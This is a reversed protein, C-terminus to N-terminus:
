PSTITLLSSPCRVSVFAMHGNAPFPIFSCYLSACILYVGQIYSHTWLSPFYWKHHTLALKWHLTSTCHIKKREMGTSLGAERAPGIYLALRLPLFPCCNTAIHVTELVCCLAQALCCYFPLSPFPHSYLPPSLFPLPYSFPFSRMGRIFIRSGGSVTFSRSCAINYSNITM